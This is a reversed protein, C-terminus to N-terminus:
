KGAQVHRLMDTFIEFQEKSYFRPKLGGQTDLNEFSGNPSSLVKIGTDIYTKYAPSKELRFLVEHLGANQVFAVLKPQIGEHYKVWTDVSLQAVEDLTALLAGPLPIPKPTPLGAHAPATPVSSKLAGVGQALLSPKASPLPPPVAAKPTAALPPKPPVVTPRPVAPPVPPKPRIVEPASLEKSPPAAPLEKEELMDHLRTKFTNFFPQPMGGHTPAPAPATPVPTTQPKTVVPHPANLIHSLNAAAPMTPPKPPAQTVSAVTPGPAPQQTSLIKELELVQKDNMLDLLALWEQRETDNLVPSTHILEKLKQEQQPNM